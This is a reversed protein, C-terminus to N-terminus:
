YLLAWLLCLFCSCPQFYYWSTQVRSAQSSPAMSISPAMTPAKSPAAKSPAMSPEMSPAMSPCPTVDDLVVHTRPDGFSPTSIFVVRVRLRSGDCLYGTLVNFSDLSLDRGYVNIFPFDNGVGQLAWDGNFLGGYVDVTSSGLVFLSSGISMFLGSGGTFSGGKITLSGTKLVSVFIADGGQASLQIGSGPDLTEADGGKFTGGTITVHNDSGGIILARGGVKRLNSNSIANGGLFSGGSLVAFSEDGIGLATGGATESRTTDEYFSATISSGEQVIITSKESVSVATALDKQDEDLPGAPASISGTPALVLTTVNQVRVATDTLTTDIVSTGGDNYLIPDAAAAARGGELLALSALAFFLPVFKMM